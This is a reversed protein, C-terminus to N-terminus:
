EMALVPTIRVAQTEPHSTELAAVAGSRLCYEGWTQRKVELVEDPEENSDSVDPNEM